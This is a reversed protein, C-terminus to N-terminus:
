LTCGSEKMCHKQYSCYQCKSDGLVDKGSKFANYKRVSIRGLKRQLEVENADWILSYDKGPLIKQRAHSYTNDFKKFIDHVSIRLEALRGEDLSHYGPSSYLDDYSAVKGLDINYVEKGTSDLATILAYGQDNLDVKYFFTTGDSRNIYQLYVEDIGKSKGEETKSLYYKYLMAQMLNHSAPMPTNKANGLISPAKYASVSKMEILKLKGQHSIVEDGKGSIIIKNETNPISYEIPIQEEVHMGAEKYKNIHYSEYMIGADCIGMGTVTSPNSPKMGLIKYFMARKCEGVAIKGLQAMSESPWAINQLRERPEDFSKIRKVDNIFITKIFSM